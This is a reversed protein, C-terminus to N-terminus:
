KRGKKPRAVGSFNDGVKADRRAREAPNEEALDDGAAEELIPLKALDQEYGEHVYSRFLAELTIGKAQAIRASEMLVETELDLSVEKRPQKSTM